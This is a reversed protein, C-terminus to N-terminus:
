SPRHQLLWDAIESWYEFPQFELHERRLVDALDGRAFRMQSQVLRAPDADPIGDGAFAVPLSEHSRNSHFSVSEQLCRRVIAAKGIGHTPSFYLSDTPLEMLLGRGTEFRGPNAHVEVDLGSWALVRRIYWECGASAVIVRWGAAQLSRVAVSVQPGLEMKRVVSLVEDESARISAFYLRLADFHTITGARFQSWYDPTGGPVLFEIALKYFDLRSMTGDFDTILVGADAPSEREVDIM